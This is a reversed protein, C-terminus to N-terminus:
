APEEIMAQRTYVHDGQSSWTLIDEEGSFGGSDDHEKTGECHELCM